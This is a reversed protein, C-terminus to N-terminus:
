KDSRSVAIDSAEPFLEPLTKGPATQGHAQRQKAAVAPQQELEIGLPGKQSPTLNRRGLQNAMLHATVRPARRDGVRAASDSGVDRYSVAWLRLRPDYRAATFVGSVARAAGSSGTAVGGGRPRRGGESGKFGDRHHVSGSKGRGYLSPSV